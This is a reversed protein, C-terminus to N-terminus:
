NDPKGSPPCSTRSTLPEQPGRSLVPFPPGLVKADGASFAAFRAPCAIPAVARPAAPTALHAPPSSSPEASGPRGPRVPLMRAAIDGDEDAREAGRHTRGMV